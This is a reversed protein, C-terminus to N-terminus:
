GDALSRLVVLCDVRGPEAARDADLREVSFPRTRILTEMWTMLDTFPAGQFQVRIEGAAGPEIRSLSAALGALRASQDVVALASRGELSREPGREGAGRLRAVEPEIRDLWDALARQGAIEARLAARSEALPEWVLTYILVGLVVAAAVMVWRRERTQLRSWWAKM